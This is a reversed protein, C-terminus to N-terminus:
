VVEDLFELRDGDSPIHRLRFLRCLKRMTPLTPNKKGSLYGHLSAKSLHLKASLVGISDGSLSVAQSLVQRAQPAM